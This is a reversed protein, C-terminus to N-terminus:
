EQNRHASTMDDVFGGGPLAFRFTEAARFPVESSIKASAPILLSPFARVGSFSPPNTQLCIRLATTFRLISESSVGSPVPAAWQQFLGWLVCILDLFPWIPNTKMGTSHVWGRWCSLQECSSSPVLARVPPQSEHKHYITIIMM